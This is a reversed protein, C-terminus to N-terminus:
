RAPQTLKLWMRSKIAINATGLIEPKPVFRVLRAPRAIDTTRPLGSAVPPSLSASAISGLRGDAMGHSARGDDLMDDARSHGNCRSISGRNQIEVLTIALTTSIEFLLTGAPTQAIFPDIREASASIQVSVDDCPCFTEASSRTRRVRSRRATSATIQPIGATLVSRM